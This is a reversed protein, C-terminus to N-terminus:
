QKTNDKKSYDITHELNGQEDYFEWIGTRQGKTFNGQYFPIGNQHYVIYPGDEQGDVFTAEVQVNGNPFYFFVRGNRQGATLRETSRVTYNSYFQIVDQHPGSCFVVTAPTGLLGMDSVRVSDLKGDYYPGGNRNFFQWNSGFEHNSSFDGSAFLQGNDFYYQWVGDPQEPMGSFTKEFQLQGNEYYMREGVRVPSKKDGKVLFVLLPKGDPYTQVVQERVRNCSVVLLAALLLPLLTKISMSKMTVIKSQPNPNLNNPVSISISPFVM